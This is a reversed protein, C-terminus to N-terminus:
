GSLWWILAVMVSASVCMLLVGLWLLDKVSDDAHVRVRETAKWTLAM